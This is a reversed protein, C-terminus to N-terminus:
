LMVGRHPVFWCLLLFPQLSIFPWVIYQGAKKEDFSLEKWDKEQLKELQRRVKYKEAKDLNEWQAEVNSLPIAPGSVDNVGESSEYVPAGHGLGPRAGAETALARRPVPAAASPLRCAARRFAAASM